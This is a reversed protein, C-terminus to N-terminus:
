ASAATVIYRLCFPTMQAVLNGTQTPSPCKSRRTISDSVYCERYEILGILCERYEILGILCERYEILGILCERYEILEILCERYEILGIM